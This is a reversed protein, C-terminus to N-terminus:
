LNKKPLLLRLRKKNRRRLRRLKKRRKQRGRIRKRKMPRQHICCAQDRMLWLHLSTTMGLNSTIRLSVWLRLSNGLGTRRARSKKPKQRKRKSLCGKRIRQSTKETSHQM